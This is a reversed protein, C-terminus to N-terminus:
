PDDFVIEKVRFLVCFWLSKHGCEVSGFVIGQWELRRWARRVKGHVAFGLVSHRNEDAGHTLGNEMVVSTANCLKM